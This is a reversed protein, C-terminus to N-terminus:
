HRTQRRDRWGLLVLAGCVLALASGAGALALAMAAGLALLACLLWTSYRVPFHADVRHLWPLM